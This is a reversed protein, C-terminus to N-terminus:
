GCAGRLTERRRSTRRCDLYNAGVVHAKSDIQKMWKIFERHGSGDNALRRKEKGIAADLYAKAIDVGLYVLEENV